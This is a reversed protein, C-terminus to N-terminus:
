SEMQTTRLQERMMWDKGEQIRQLILSEKPNPSDDIPTRVDGDPGDIRQESGISIRGLKFL